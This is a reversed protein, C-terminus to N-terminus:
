KEKSGPEKPLSMRGDADLPPQTVLTSCYFLTLLLPVISYGAMILLSIHLNKGFAGPRTAIKFFLVGGTVWAILLWRKLRLNGSRQFEKKDVNEAM